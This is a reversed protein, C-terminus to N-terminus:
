DERNIVVSETIVTDMRIDHEEVPVKDFLQFDFCVGAKMATTTKLLKDYYAKGRGMRNCQKDFAVGPIILLDISSFLEFAPGIPEPIGFLAGPQMSPMGAFSKLELDDGKVCPLLITKQGAWKKIFEHTHVEDDMSWYFVIVDSNKFFDSGELNKWILQSRSMKEELSIEQKLQRIKNRLRKKEEKIM